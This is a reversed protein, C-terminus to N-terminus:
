YNGNLVGDITLDNDVIWRAIDESCFDCLEWVVERLDRYSEIEELDNIIYYEDRSHFKDEKIAYEIMAIIESFDWAYSVMDCLESMDYVTPYCRESAFVNYVALKETESLKAYEWDTQAEKSQTKMYEDFEKEDSLTKTITANTM